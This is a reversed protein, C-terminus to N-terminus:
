EFRVSQYIQKRVKSQIAHSRSLALPKGNGQFRRLNEQLLSDRDCRDPRATLTQLTADSAERGVCNQVIWHCGGGRRSALCTSVTVVFTTSTVARSAVRIRNKARSFAPAVIGCQAPNAFRKAPCSIRKPRHLCPAREIGAARAKKSEACGKLVEEDHVLGRPVSKGTLQAIGRDPASTSTSM